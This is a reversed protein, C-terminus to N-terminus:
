AGSEIGIRSSLDSTLILTVTVWPHYTVSRLRLICACVLHPIGVDFLILYPGSVFIKDDLDSTLAATVQFHYAVSQGGM